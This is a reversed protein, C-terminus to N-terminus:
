LLDDIFYFMNVIVDMLEGIFVLIQLLYNKNLYFCDMFGKIVLQLILILVLLSM